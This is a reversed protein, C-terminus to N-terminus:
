VVDVYEKKVLLDYEDQGFYAIFRQKNTLNANLLVGIYYQYDDKTTESM